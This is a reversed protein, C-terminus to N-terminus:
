GKPGGNVTRQYRLTVHSERFLKEKGFTAFEAECLNNSVMCYYEESIEQLFGPSTELWVNLNKLEPLEKYNSDM